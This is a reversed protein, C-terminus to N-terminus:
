EMAWMSVLTLLDGPMLESQNWILQGVDDGFFSQAMFPSRADGQKDRDIPSKSVPVDVGASKLIYRVFDACRATEGEKYKKGVWRTAKKVVLNSTSQEFSLASTMRQMVDRITKAPPTRPLSPATKKNIEEQYRGWISQTYSAISPYARGNSYQPQTDDWLWPRGSYWIAAVRRAIESIDRGPKSQSAIAESLKYRIIKLQLEPSNLFQTPSIEYGLAEKSWSPVNSPLVQGYGLAGTDPNVISFKGSSEQGIISHMLVDVDVQIRNGHSQNLPMSNVPIPHEIADRKYSGQALTSSNSFSASGHSFAGSRANFEIENGGNLQNFSLLLTLAAAVGATALATTLQNKQKPSLLHSYEQLLKEYEQELERASSRFLRLEEVLSLQELKHRVAKRNILITTPM